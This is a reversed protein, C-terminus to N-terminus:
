HSIKRGCDSVVNVPCWPTTYAATQDGRTGPQKAETEPVNCALMGIQHMAQEPKPWSSELFNIGYDMDM